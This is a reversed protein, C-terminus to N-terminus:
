APRKQAPEVRKARAIFVLGAAVGATGVVLPWTLSDSLLVVSLLVGAIPSLFGFSIILTPNYLRILHANIMFGFGAIVIGQYLLGAIAPWDLAQWNITELALGGGAFLPLAIVMQWVVVRLPEINRMLHASFIMRGGLMAAHCLIVLSGIGAWNLTGTDLDRLLIVVIGGFAVALGLAKARTLRDDPFYFHAFFAAFLPFTSTLVSAVAGSTLDFGWNMVAIQIAFLLSLLILPPWERREPALRIGRLRAWIVICVVGILFRVFASWLPPFVELGFKVAVPNAGWLVNILIAILIASLPLRM